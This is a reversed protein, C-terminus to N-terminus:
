PHREVIRTVDDLSVSQGLRECLIQRGHNWQDLLGAIRSQMPRRRAGLQRKNTALPPISYLMFRDIKMIYAGTRERIEAEM